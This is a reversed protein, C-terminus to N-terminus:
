GGDAPELLEVRNGFPDTVYARHYGPLPEDAKVDFGAEICREVLSALGSVLLAPHAKKAPRFDDEVGLHIQADGSAFWAGGRRALNEPKPQETMGLVDGYFARAEAERGRPMALQVHHLSRIM